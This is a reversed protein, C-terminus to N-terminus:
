LAEKLFRLHEQMTEKVADKISSGIQKSDINSGNGGNINVDVKINSSASSTSNTTTNAPSTVPSSFLGGLLKPMSLLGFIPNGLPNLISKFSMKTIFSDITNMFGTLAKINNTGIIDGFFSEKGKFGAIIDEIILFVGLITAGLRLAQLRAALAGDAMYKFSTAIKMIAQAFLGLNTLFNVSGFFILTAILIRAARDAGGMIDVFASFVNYIKGVAVSLINVFQVLGKIFSEIRIKILEKNALIWKRFNIALENIVPILDKGILIRLGRGIAQLRELNDKFEEAAKADEESMVFGLARAEQRLENIGISGSNLLPILRAGSRGFLEMALASKETGDKMVKFRDAVQTLVADSSLLKGNSDTVKINLRNFTAVATETGDKAELMTRSLKVLSMNMTENELGSLEAAYQYEQLAETSLGVSQATKRADDGTKAVSYALGFLSAAAGVGLLAINTISTKLKGFHKEASELDKTDVKFGWETLLERVTAM